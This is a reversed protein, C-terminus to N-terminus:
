EEILTVLKDFTSPNLTDGKHWRKLTRFDVRKECLMKYSQDKGFGGDKLMQLKKDLQERLKIEKEKRENALKEIEKFKM